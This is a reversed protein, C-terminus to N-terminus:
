RGSNIFAIDSKCEKRMLECLWNGCNSEQTRIIRFRTELDAGLRALKRRMQQKLHREYKKVLLEVHKNKAFNAPTVRIREWQVLSRGLLKPIVVSGGPCDSPKLEGSFRICGIAAGVLKEASSDTARGPVNTEFYTGCQSSTLRELILESQSQAPAAPRLLLTRGESDGCPQSNDSIIRGKAQLLQSALESPSLEEAQSNSVEEAVAVATAIASATAATPSDTGDLTRPATAIAAAAIAAAGVRQGSDDILATSLLNPQPSSDGPFIAIATFDHFDTGSKVVPTGGSFRIVCYQPLDAM